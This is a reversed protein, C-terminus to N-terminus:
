DLGPYNGAQISLLSICRPPTPFERSCEPERPPIARTRGSIVSGSIVRNEGDTLEDATISEMCAGIRTKILRPNKVSPGALSIVREVPIKGTTFLKGVAAVDQADIHWVTKNRHVPDLFHM